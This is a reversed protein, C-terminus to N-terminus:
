SIREQRLDPVIRAVTEFDSDLHLVPLRYHLATAVLLYDAVSLCQHASEKALARRVVSITDWVDDPVAVWPYLDRLGNEVRECTAADATALTETLIPDCIGM